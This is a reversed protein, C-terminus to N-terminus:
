TKPDDKKAPDGAPYDLDTRIGVRKTKRNGPFGSPRGATQDDNSHGPAGGDWFGKDKVHERPNGAM